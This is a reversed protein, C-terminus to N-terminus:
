PPLHEHGVGLGHAVHHRDDVLVGVHFIGLSSVAPVLGLIVVGLTGRLPAVARLVEAIIAWRMMPLLM